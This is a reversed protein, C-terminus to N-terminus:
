LAPSTMGSRKTLIDSLKWITTLMPVWGQISMYALTRTRAGTPAIMKKSIKKM